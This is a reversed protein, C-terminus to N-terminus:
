SNMRELFDHRIFFHLIHISHHPLVHSVIRLGSCSSLLDVACFSGREVRARDLIHAPFPYSVLRVVRQGVREQRLRVAQNISGDVQQEAALQLQVSIDAACM